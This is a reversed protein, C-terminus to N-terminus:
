RGEGVLVDACRCASGRGARVLGHLFFWAVMFPEAGLIPGWTDGLAAVRDAIWEFSTLREAM